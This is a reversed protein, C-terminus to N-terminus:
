VAKTLQVPYAGYLLESAPWRPNQFAVLAIRAGRYEGWRILTGPTNKPVSSGFDPDPTKLPLDRGARVGENPKFDRMRLM